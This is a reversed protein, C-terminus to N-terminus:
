TATRGTLRGGGCAGDLAGAMFAKAAFTETDHGAEACSSSSSSSPAQKAGGLLAGLLAGVGGGGHAAASPGGAAGPRAAAADAGGNERAAAAAAASAGVSTRAHAARSAGMDGSEWASRAASIDRSAM